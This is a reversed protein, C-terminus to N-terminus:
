QQGPKGCVSRDTAPQGQWAQEGCGMHMEEPTKQLVPWWGSTKYIDEVGICHFSQSDRHLTTAQTHDTMEGM